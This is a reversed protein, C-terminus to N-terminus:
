LVIKLAIVNIAVLSDRKLKPAKKGYIFQNPNPEKHNTDPFNWYPKHWNATETHQYPLLSKYFRRYVGKFCDLKRDYICNEETVASLMTLPLFYKGNKSKMDLVRRNNERLSHHIAEKMRIESNHSRRKRPVSWHVELAVGLLDSEENFWLNLENRIDDILKTIGSSSIEFVTTIYKTEVVSNRLLQKASEYDLVEAKDEQLKLDHGVSLQRPVAIAKTFDKRRKDPENNDCSQQIIPELTRQLPPQGRTVTNNGNPSDARSAINRAEIGSLYGSERECSEALSEDMSVDLENVSKQTPNQQTEGPSYDSMYDVDESDCSKEHTVLCVSVSHSASNEEATQIDLSGPSQLLPKSIQSHDNALMQKISGKGSVPLKEHKQKQKQKQSSQQEDSNSVKKLLEETAAAATAAAAAATAAASAASAAAAAAATAMSATEITDSTMMVSKPNARRNNSSKRDKKFGDIPQQILDDQDSGSGYDEKRNKLRRTVARRTKSGVHRLLKEFKGIADM